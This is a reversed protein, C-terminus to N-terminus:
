SSTEPIDPVEEIQEKYKVFGCREYNRLANPHDNNDTHLWIRSPNKQWLKRLVADLFYRGFGKGQAKPLLGFHKIEIEPFKSTDFECIGIREGNCRLFYIANFESALITDLESESILLRSSWCHKAGIERYMSLYEVRDIRELKIELSSSPALFEEVGPSSLMELYSVTAKM